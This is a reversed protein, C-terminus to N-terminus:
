RILENLKQAHKDSDGSEIITNSGDFFEVRLFERRPISRGLHSSSFNEVRDIEIEYFSIMKSTGNWISLESAAEQAQRAVRRAKGLLGESTSDSEQVDDIILSTDLVLAIRHNTAIMEPHGHAAALHDAFRISENEPHEATAWCHIAPDDAWEDALFREEIVVQSPTRWESSDGKVM